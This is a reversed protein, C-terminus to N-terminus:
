TEVSVTHLGVWTIPDSHCHGVMFIDISGYLGSDSAQGIRFVLLDVFFQNLISQLHKWKPLDVHQSPEWWGQAITYRRFFWDLSTEEVETNSTWNHRHNSHINSPINTTSFFISKATEVSITQQTSSIPSLQFITMPYDSESTFLLGSTADNLMGVVDNVSTSAVFTDQEADSDDDSM